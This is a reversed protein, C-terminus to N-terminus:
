YHVWLVLFCFANALSFCAASLFYENSFGICIKDPISTSPAVYTVATVKSYSSNINAIMDKHVQFCSLNLVVRGKTHHNTTHHHCCGFKNTQPGWLLTYSHCCCYPKKNKSIFILYLSKAIRM